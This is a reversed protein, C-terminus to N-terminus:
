KILARVVLIFGTIAIGTGLYSDLNTKTDDRFKALFDEPKGFIQEPYFGGDGGNGGDALAPANLSIWGLLCYIILLSYFRANLPSFNSFLFRDYKM